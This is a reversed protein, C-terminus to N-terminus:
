ADEHGLTSKKPTDAEDDDKKDDEDAKVVPLGVPGTAFLEDQADERSALQERLRAVSEVVADYDDCLEAHERVLGPQLVALAQELLASRDDAYLFQEQAGRGEVAEYLCELARRDRQALPLSAISVHRQEVIQRM